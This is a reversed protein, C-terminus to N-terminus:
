KKQTPAGSERFAALVACAATVFAVGVFGIFRFYEHAFLLGGIGSGIAQGVYLLSTNLAVSASALDPAAAVLRAQQLSNVASFGFGWFFIGAGMAPLWGAGVAWLALGLLMSGLFIALTKQTGLATVISSAVVNGILGVVGYFAFFGGIIAAGAGSLASLLPALYVFVAFQGCTQLLTVLLILMIRKNEAIAVFSRPSLPAGKLGKPLAGFLLGAIIAAFGALAGYVAQWGFNTAVFTVLPLGGAIAISWGLFVFAIASPRERDTVILAVTTAAQPTYLAGIALMIVRLLLIVSYNSTLASAGQGIALVALTVVLLVRRDIRTTLWAMVPSGICLVVAGYTVLLGTDHIGVGLGTALEALMGAPGLITMGVVVNGLMLVIRSFYKQV